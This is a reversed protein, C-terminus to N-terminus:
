GLLGRRRGLPWLARGLSPREPAPPATVQPLRGLLRPVVRGGGGGSIPSSWRPSRGAVQSTGLRGGRGSRVGAPATPEAAPGLGPRHRCSGPEPPGAEMVQLDNTPDPL